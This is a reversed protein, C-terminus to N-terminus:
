QSSERFTLWDPKDLQWIEHQTFKPDVFEAPETRLLRAGTKEKIRRSRQNGLANSFYLSEFGLDAFAFDMVPVVAETMLGQGWHQRGLWFGRNEPSPTRWLAIGGILENPADKLFLGWDWRSIGQTPLIVSNIFDVVGDDPYPWPVKASLNRIVEYDVFHRTYAPADTLQVSRLLLRDTQFQPTQM